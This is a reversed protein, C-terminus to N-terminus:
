PHDISLLKDFEVTAADWVDNLKSWRQFDKPLTLAAKEKSASEMRDLCQQVKQNREISELEEIKIWCRGKIYEVLVSKSFSEVTRRKPTERM